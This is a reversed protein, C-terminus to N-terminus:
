VQTFKIFIKARHQSPNYKIVRKFVLTLLHLAMEAKGGRRDRHSPIQLQVGQGRGCWGSLSKWWGEPLSCWNFVAWSRVMRAAEECGCLVPAARAASPNSWISGRSWTQHLEALEGSKPLFSGLAPRIFLEWSPHGRAVHAAALSRQRCATPSAMAPCLVAESWPKTLLIVKLLLGHLCQCGCCFLYMCKEMYM